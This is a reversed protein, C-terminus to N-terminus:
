RMRLCSSMDLRNQICTKVEQEDGGPSPNAGHKSNTAWYVAALSGPAGGTMTHRM